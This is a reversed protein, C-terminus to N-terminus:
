LIVKSLADGTLRGKEPLKGGWGDDHFDEDGGGEDENQGTQTGCQNKQHAVLTFAITGYLRKRKADAKGDCQKQQYQNSISQSPNFRGANSLRGM